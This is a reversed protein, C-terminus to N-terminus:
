RRKLLRKYGKKVVKKAPQTFDEVYGTSARLGKDAAAELRGQAMLLFSGLIKIVFQLPYFYLAMAVGVVLLGILITGYQIIADALWTLAHWIWEGISWLFQGIAVLANWAADIANRIAMQLGTWIANLIEDRYQYLVMIAGLGASVAQAADEGAFVWVATTIIVTGGALLGIVLVDFISVKENAHGFQADWSSISAIQPAPLENDTILYSSFLHFAYYSLDIMTYETLNESYFNWAGMISYNFENHTYPLDELIFTVRESSNMKFGIYMFCSEYAFDPDYDGSASINFQSASSALIYDRYTTAAAQDIILDDFGLGRSAVRLDKIEITGDDTRFPIMISHYGWILNSNPVYVHFWIEADEALYFDRSVVRGGIGNRMDFSWGLDLAFNNSDFVYTDPATQIYTNIYSTTISDSAVDNPSIYLTFRAEAKYVVNLVFLYLENAILPANVMVYMRDDVTWYYNGDFLSTDTPDMLDFYPANWVLYHDEDTFSTTIYTQYGEPAGALWDTTVEYEYCDSEPIKWIQMTAYWFDDSSSFIPLRVVFQSVGNMISYPSFRFETSLTLVSPETTVQNLKFLSEKTSGGIWVGQYTPNWTAHNQKASENAVNVMEDYDDQHESPANLVTTNETVVEAQVYQPIILIAVLAIAYFPLLKKTLM